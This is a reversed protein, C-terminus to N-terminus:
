TKRRVKVTQRLIKSPLPMCHTQISLLKRRKCQDTMMKYLGRKRTRTRRKMMKWSKMREKVRKVMQM